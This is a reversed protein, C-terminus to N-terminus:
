KKLKDVIAQALEMMFKKNVTEEEMYNMFRDILLDQKKILPNLKDKEQTRIFSILQNKLKKVESTVDSPDNPDIGTNIFYECMAATLETKSAKYTSCLRDLGDFTENYIRITKYSM